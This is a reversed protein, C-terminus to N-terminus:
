RGGGGSYFTFAHEHQEHQENWVVCRVAVVGGGWSSYGEVEARAHMALM